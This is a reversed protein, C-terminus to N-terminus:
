PLYLSSSNMPTKDHNVLLCLQPAGDQLCENPGTNWSPNWASVERAKRWTSIRKTCRADVIQSQKFIFIYLYLILMGPQHNWDRQFINTLQSQYEWRIGFYTGFWWGSVLVWETKSYTPNQTIINYTPIQQFIKSCQIIYVKFCGM